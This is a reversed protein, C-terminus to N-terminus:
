SRRQPARTACRPSCSATSRAAASRSRPPHLYPDGQRGLAPHLHLREAEQREQGDQMFAQARVLEQFESNDYGRASQFQRPPPAFVIRMYDPDSGLAGYNILALEYDGEATRADLSPRDLSQPEIEIGLPELYSILLESARSSVDPSFSLTFRLPQGDPGRRAGGAMEYGAADLEAQARELDFPYTEVETYWANSPPLWGPNGPLALGQLLRSVMEERDVAYAVARRFRPDGLAGGREMQFYLALTLDPSGRLVEFDSDARFGELAEEAPQVPSPGGAVIDGNQLATLEDGVPLHEIQQM